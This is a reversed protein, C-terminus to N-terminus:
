RCRSALELAIQVIAENVFVDNELIGSYYKSQIEKVLNTLEPVSKEKLVIDNIKREEESDIFQLKM